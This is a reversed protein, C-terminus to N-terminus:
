QFRKSSGEQESNRILYTTLVMKPTHHKNGSDCNKYKLIVQDKNAEARGDHSVNVKQVKQGARPEGKNVTNVSITEWAM